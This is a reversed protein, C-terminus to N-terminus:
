AERASAQAVAAYVPRRRDEDQPQVLGQKGHLGDNQKSGSSFPSINLREFSQHYIELRYIVFGLHTHIFARFVVQTCSAVAAAAFCIIRKGARAHGLLIWSCIVGYRLQLELVYGKKAAGYWALHHWSYLWFCAHGAVTVGVNRPPYGGLVM